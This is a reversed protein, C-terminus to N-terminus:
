RLEQLVPPNPPQVSEKEECKEYVYGGSQDNHPPAKLCWTTSSWADFTGGAKNDDYEAIRSWDSSVTFDQSLLNM